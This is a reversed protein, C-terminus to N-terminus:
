RTSLPYTLTSFTVSITTPHTFYAELPGGAPLTKIANCDDISALKTM